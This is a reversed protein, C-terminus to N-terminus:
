RRDQHQSLPHQGPLHLRRRSATPRRERKDPTRRLCRRTAISAYGGDDGHQRVLGFNDFATAFLDMSRQMDRKSTVDLACDDAFFLEHVTTPSVRSQLLMRRHNLLQGDTRYTIRTGPREERYADMLMASFILSFFTPALACGQNVGNFVVFAESVAENDTVRAMMGDHLQRVMQTLQEPCGFKQMIKWLGERNVTDLAKTPDVFTSYLHIWIGQCKEQLQSAAFIMDTTERHRRFGFQSEPLRGQVLHSNLRNILIRVFIKGAINLLFTGKGTPSSSCPGLPKTLLPCPDLHANIEVQPLRAIAADSITSPCNLVGRLHEAWQQLIHAKVTLLSSNDASLLPAPGKATPGHVAKIVAFANKWENRDAYGQIEEAKRATWADQMECLRQQVPRRSRYFAVKNDDTPRTVYIKHLRIKGVLLNSM